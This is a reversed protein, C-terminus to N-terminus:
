VIVGKAKLTKMLTKKETETKMVCYDSMLLEFITLLDQISLQRRSDAIIKGVSRREVNVNGKRGVLIVANYVLYNQLLTSDHM